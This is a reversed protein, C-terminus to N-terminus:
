NKQYDEVPMRLTYRRVSYRDYDKFHQDRAEITRADTGEAWGKPFDFASRKFKVPNLVQLAAAQRKENPHKASAIVVVGCKSLFPHFIDPTDKAWDYGARHDVREPTIWALEAGRVLGVHEPITGYRAYAVLAGVGVGNDKLWAMAEARMEKCLVRHYEMDKKLDSCTRRNHGETECYRCTRVKAYKAREKFTQATHSDPHEEVYKKLQPCGRRNHKTNYCYSCRVTGNYSM